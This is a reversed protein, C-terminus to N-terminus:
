DFNDLNLTLVHLKWSYVTFIGWIHANEEAHGRFIQFTLVPV